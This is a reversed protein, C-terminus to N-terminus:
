NLTLFYTKISDNNFGLILLTKTEMKLFEFSKLNGNPYIGTKEKEAVVYGDVQNSLLIVGSIADLRPTEVETEYINGGIICDEFGDNNFDFFAIDLIPFQQAEIPLTSTVFQGEGKNILLISEFSNVEKKYSGKLKEGYVDVLTANAFDTFKPYKTKIFPMQQSSCERGRLPVYEGNYKKSLVIDHSGNDDFDNAYIKFPKDSSAKYKLNLGANGLIYDPLGDNNIDTEKVTFWWGKLNPLMNGTEKQIFSDGQNEFFGIPSWEGVAIFDQLGDKNFDTSVLSNIIGFTKLDPAKESTVDKLKGGINEYLISESHRPYHKAIIRNGVILDSDGDNDFDIVSVTKGSKRNQSLVTNKWKTFSGKGDNIYIRDEYYSSDPEFSNGGSVVYLDLDGDSDFDFFVSEMDEYGADDEISNSHQKKFKNTTQLFIAGPQGSAGGIFVDEKGDNNLDGKTIFPGFNSQKYPLLIEKEFDDYLNEKHNFELNLQSPEIPDFLLKSNSFQKRNTTIAEKEYFTITQNSDVNYKEQRSGSPWLVSVTDIINTQGLGFHATNDQSSMYGRVRKSEIFQKQDHHTIEAKAFTESHEGVFKIKLYNGLNNEITTNKYLFAHQDINNVVLDLDGDNDLDGTAAGNSFSPESLGSVNAVEMFQLGEENKYFINSLKESPMENYLQQKIETPVRNKYKRQTESVKRQLDNDLAYRRYGNTVYIDKDADNDFDSMLVSWSWDTNATETLQTINNFKNNGLNLQLSNFMYQHQFNETDVLYSFRDTSMSAMLTKARYHDNSAMDLTFIDQLRDNNIDAIDVGMGYFSIHNTYEKINDTFTGNGNNIYMADPLYYDSAIYIDLWGDDNIDAITLGLGFIPRELGVKKTIDIFKGGDNRYFHSSNFYTSQNDKKILRKLTIPDVGYLENENMVVCDLDGDKDFDFFASQTSIGKDAIGLEEATETFTLDKNNIYLLNARNSRNNPGGQSVYIDKYGDNNIDVFTIGNSWKKGQNINATLTIDEFILNGKNLYLKNEVQNGCFFIDLLGDNNIDELGVGAGNYFYDFNFLNELTAVNEKLTNQFDINSSDKSILEFLPIAKPKSEVNLDSKKQDSNSCSIFLVLACFIAAVTNYHKILSISQLAQKM